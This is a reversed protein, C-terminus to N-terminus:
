IVKGYSLIESISKAISPKETVMLIKPIYNM